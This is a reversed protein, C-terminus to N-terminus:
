LRAEESNTVKLALHFNSLKVRDEMDVYMNAATLDCHVIQEQHCYELALAVQLLYQLLTKEHYLKRNLSKNVLYE